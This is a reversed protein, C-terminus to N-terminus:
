SPANFVESVLEANLLALKRMEGIVRKLEHRIKEKELMAM